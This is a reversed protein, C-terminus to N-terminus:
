LSFLPRPRTRAHRPRRAWSGAARVRAAPAAAPSRPALGPRRKFVYHGCIEGCKKFGVSELLEVFELNLFCSFEGGLCTTM